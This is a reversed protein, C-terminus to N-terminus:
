ERGGPVVRPRWGQVLPGTAREADSIAWRLEDETM